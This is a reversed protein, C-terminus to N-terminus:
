GLHNWARTSSLLKGVQHSFSQACKPHLHYLDTKFQSEQHNEARGHEQLDVFHQVAVSVQGVACHEMFGQFWAVELPSTLM